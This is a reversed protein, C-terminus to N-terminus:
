NRFHKQGIKPVIGFLCLKTYFGLCFVSFASKVHFMKVFCIIVLVNGTVPFGSFGWQKQVKIVETVTHNPSLVVPDTLFGQEFRKVKRVEAAQFEISCNHHLIGIGGLLQFAITESLALINLEKMVSTEIM